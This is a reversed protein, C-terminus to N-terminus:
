QLDNLQSRKAARIPPAAAPQTSTPYPGLRPAFAYAVASAGTLGGTFLSRSVGCPIAIPPKPGRRGDIPLVM